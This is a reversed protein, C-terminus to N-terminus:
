TQVRKDIFGFTIIMSTIFVDIRDADRDNQSATEIAVIEGVFSGVFGVVIAGVGVVDIFFLQIQNGILSVNQLFGELALGHFFVFSSQDLSLVGVM